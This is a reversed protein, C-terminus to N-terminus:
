EGDPSTNKAKSVLEKDSTGYNKEWEREKFILEKDYVLNQPKKIILYLAVGVIAILVSALSISIYINFQNCDKELPLLKFLIVSIISAIFGLFALPTKLADAISKAAKSWSSDSSAPM